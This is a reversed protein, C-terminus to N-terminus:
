HLNFSNKREFEIVNEWWIAFVQITHTHTYTHKYIFTKLQKDEDWVKRIRVVELPIYAFFKVVIGFCVIIYFLSRLHHVTKIRSKILTWDIRRSIRVQFKPYIALPLFILSFSHRMMRFYLIFEHEIIKAWITLLFFFKKKFSNDFNSSFWEPHKQGIQIKNNCSKNKEIFYTKLLNFELFYKM